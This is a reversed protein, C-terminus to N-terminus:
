VPNRGEIICDRAASGASVARFETMSIDSSICCLETRSAPDPTGPFQPLKRRGPSDSDQLDIQAAFPFTNHVKSALPGRM